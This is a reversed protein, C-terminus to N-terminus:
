RAAARESFGSDFTRPVGRRGRAPRLERSLSAIAAMVRLNAGRALVRELHRATLEAATQADPALAAGLDYSAAVVDGLSPLGNKTQM